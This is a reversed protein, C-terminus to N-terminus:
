LERHKRYAVYTHKRLLSTIHDFIHLSLSDLKNLHDINLIFGISAIGSNVRLTTEFDTFKEFILSFSFIYTLFNKDPLSPFLRKKPNSRPVKSDLGNGSDCTVTPSSPAGGLM